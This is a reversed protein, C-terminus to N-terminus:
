LHSNIRFLGCEEYKLLIRPLSASFEEYCHLNTVSESQSISTQYDILLAEALGLKNNLGPRTNKCTLAFSQM